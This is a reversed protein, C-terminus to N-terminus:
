PHSQSPAGPCPGRSHFCCPTYYQDILQEEARDINRYGQRCVSYKDDYFHLLFSSRDEREVILLLAKNQQWVTPVPSYYLDSLTVHIDVHSFRVSSVTRQLFSYRSMGRRVVRDFTATGDM